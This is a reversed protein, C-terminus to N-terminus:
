FNNRMLKLEWKMGYTEPMKRLSSCESKKSTNLRKRKILLLNLFKDLSFSDFYKQYLPSKKLHLGDIQKSTYDYSTNGLYIRGSSLGRDLAQLLASRRFEFRITRSAIGTNKSSYMRWAAENSCKQTFYTCYIRHPKFGEINSYDATYFRREYPDSWASPETMLFHGTRLFEIAYKVNMYKYYTPKPPNRKGLGSYTIM